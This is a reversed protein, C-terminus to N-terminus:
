DRPKETRLTVTRPTGDILLRAYAHFRPTASLRAAPFDEGFLPALLPADQPGVSMAVLSGVNGLVATRTAADLQGDLLQSALVYSVRYKRLEALSEALTPNRKSLYGSVEDVLVTCDPRESEPVDARSMAANHLGALLLSGLLRSADHGVRGKSLNVLPLRRRDMVGRLSISKRPNCLLHRLRESTTFPGLKNLLSAVILPRERANWKAFEDRWFARVADNTCRAAMTKRYLEDHLLRTVDALTVGDRGALTLLCNRFVHLLRPASAADLGFVQSFATLVGDALLSPDTGPVSALPNYFVNGAADAADLLVVDNKRRGTVSRRVADCLEGHPDILVMGSGSVVRQRAINELLVSKGSGTRGVIFLHRRLDDDKLVVPANQGRFAVRGLM